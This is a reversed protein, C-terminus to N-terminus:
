KAEILDSLINMVLARAEAKPVKYHQEVFPVIDDFSRRGDILSMLEFSVRLLATLNETTPSAPIAKQSNVLWDPLIKFEPPEKTSAIKRAVVLKLEEVRKQPNYDSHLYDRQLVRDEEIKYGTM